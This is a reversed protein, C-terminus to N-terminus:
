RAANRLPASRLPRKTQKWKTLLTTIRNISGVTTFEQPMWIIEFCVIVPKNEHEEGAVWYTKVKSVCGCSTKSDAGHQILTLIDGEEKQKIKLTRKSRHRTRDIIRSQSTKSRRTVRCNEATTNIQNTMWRSLLCVHGTHEQCILDTVTWFTFVLVCFTSWPNLQILYYDIDTNILWFLLLPKNNYSTSTSGFM